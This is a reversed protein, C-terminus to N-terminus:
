AQVAETRGRVDDDLDRAMVPALDVDRRPTRPVLRERAAHARHPDAVRAVGRRLREVGGDEERGDAVEHRRRECREIAAADERDGANMQARDGREVVRAMKKLLALDAADGRVRAGVATRQEVEGRLNGNPRRDLLERELVRVLREAAQFVVLDFAGGDKADASRATR